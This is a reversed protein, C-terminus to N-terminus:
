AIFAVLTGVNSTVVLTGLVHSKGVIATLVWTLGPFFPFFATSLWNQYGHLVIGKYWQVDWQSWANLLDSPGYSHLNPPVNTGQHNLIVAFYTFVLVAARSALWMGAAQLALSRWPMARRWAHQEPVELPATPGASPGPARAAPALSARLDHLISM